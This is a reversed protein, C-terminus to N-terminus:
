KEKSRKHEQFLFIWAAGEFLLGIIVLGLAVLPEVFYMVLAFLFLIISINKPKKMLTASLM